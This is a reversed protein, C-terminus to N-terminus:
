QGGPNTVLTAASITVGGTRALARSTFAASSTLTVSSQAMVNGYFTAGGLTASSGIQWFVNCATAGNTLIVNGSALGNLTTTFSSGIQFIFVSQPNGLGNLTLNGAMISLTSPSAYIGPPLTGVPQGGGVYTAQSLDQGGVFTQTVPGAAATANYATTLANQAALPVAANTNYGAAYIANPGDADVGPPYFGTVATGPSVGILDDHTGATIATPAYTVISLGTNTITSAALLAFPALAAGLPIAAGGQNCSLTAPAPTAIVGPPIVPTGGPATAGTANYPPVTCNGCVGGGNCSVLFALALLAGLRRIM